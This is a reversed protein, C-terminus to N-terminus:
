VVKNERAWNVLGAVTNIGLKRYVAKRHNSVTNVSIGLEDAIQMSTMQDCVLKIIELERPRIFNESQSSPKIEVEIGSSIEVENNLVIKRFSEVLTREDESKLLYGNVGMQMLTHHFKPEAYQTLIITKVNKWRKRITKFCDIGDMMPMNIDLMVVDIKYRELKDIADLGNDAEIIRDVESLPGFIGNLARRFIPHDDVILLTLHKM